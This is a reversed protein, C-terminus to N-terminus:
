HRVSGHCTRQELPPMHVDWAWFVLLAFANPLERDAAAGRQHEDGDRDRRARSSGAAGDTDVAVREPDIRNALALHQTLHAAGAREHRALNAPDGRLRRAADLAHEHTGAGDDLGVRDEGLHRIGIQHALGLFGAVLELGRLGLERLELEVQAALLEILFRGDRRRAGSVFARPQLGFGLARGADDGHEVTRRDSSSASWSLADYSM